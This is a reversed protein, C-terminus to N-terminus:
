SPCGGCGFVAGDCPRDCPVSAPLPLPVQDPDPETAPVLSFGGRDIAWEQWVALAGVCAPLGFPLLAWAPYPVKGSEWRCLTSPAVGLAAAAAGQSMGCSQRAARLACGLAEALTEPDHRM